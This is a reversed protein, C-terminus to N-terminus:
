KSKMRELSEKAPPFGQEASKMCWKVAEKHDQTVGIGKVYCGGLNCQAWANGQEASKTWGKVAEKDDKAVGEGSSYFGGLTFQAKADGAEARKVLEPSYPELKKDEAWGGM